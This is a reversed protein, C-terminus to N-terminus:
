RARDKRDGSDHGMELGSQAATFDAPFHDFGQVSGPNPISSYSIRLIAIFIERRINM